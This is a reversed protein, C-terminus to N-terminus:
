LYLPNLLTQLPINPEPDRRLLGANGRAGFPQGRKQKLGMVRRKFFGSNSQEPRLPPTGMTIVPFHPKVGVGQTS